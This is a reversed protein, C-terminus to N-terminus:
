RELAEIGHRHAALASRSHTALAAVFQEADEKAIKATLNLSAAAEPM